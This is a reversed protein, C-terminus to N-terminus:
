TEVQMVPGAHHHLLRWREDERVFVNTAILPSGAVLERCSVIAADGALEVRAGGSVVRPQAPNGLIAEWSAMVDERGVLANWGPHICTVGGRRSWLADMAGLDRAAFAAYFAENAALADESLDSM